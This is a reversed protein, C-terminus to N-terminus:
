DRFDGGLFRGEKHMILDNMKIMSMDWSDPSYGWAAIYFYTSNAWYVYTFRPYGSPRNIKLGPLTNWNTNKTRANNFIWWGIWGFNLPYHGNSTYYTQLAQYINKIVLKAESVKAKRSAKTFRPIALGALVGIIVVVIMIEILTFGKKVKM